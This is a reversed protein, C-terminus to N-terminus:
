PIRHNIKVSTACNLLKCIKYCTIDQFLYSFHSINKSVYPVVPRIVHNHLKLQFTYSLTIHENRYKSWLFFLYCSRFWLLCSWLFPVVIFCPIFISYIKTLCLSHDLLIRSASNFKASLFQQICHLMKFVSTHMLLYICRCYNLM